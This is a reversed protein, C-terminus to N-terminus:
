LLGLLTVWACLGDAPLGDAPPDDGTAAPVTGVTYGAENLRARDAALRRALDAAPGADRGRELLVWPSWSPETPPVAAQRPLSAEFLAVGRVMGGLREALLWAFGGGGQGSIAIRTPDIPRQAELTALARVIGAIDDSGWRRPDESGPLIVAVGHRVAAERWVTAEAEAVPGHPPALHVLVSLRRGTMTPPLVALAPKAVEAGALRVVTAADANAVVHEPFTTPVDAPAPATVIEVRRPEGVAESKVMLSIREGPEIGALVGSLTTAADLPVADLLAAAGDDVAATLLVNGARLGARAAPGDPLVWDIRLGEAMGPQGTDLKVTDPKVTDPKVTDPKVTDPRTAGAGAADSRAEDAPSTALIGIVARRFPPLAAVLTATVNRRAPERAGGGGAPAAREVVLEVTDGAYRPAIQHRVDAIRTVPIGAVAVIRDGARLGARAAPSGSRCGALVPEGNIQDRGRYSVGLIGAALTEGAQLRPLVARVDSFPVAFGIGADYLETGTTMGATDAPLPALIGIVRGRIDILPGGYNAPSVAADTQVGRGWARNTASVVGVALSPAASTWGRGVALAWQGVALDDRAVPELAPLPDPLDDFPETKLLVLGRPVDRSVVRAAARRGDPRVLVALRADTPVTFETTVVWGAPDVVLGTAPSGPAPGGAADGGLLSESGGAPEIRVVAPAVRELAARFAGEEALPLDTALATVCSCAYLVVATTLRGGSKRAPSTHPTRAGDISAGSPLGPTLHHHSGTSAGRGRVVDSGGLSVIKM